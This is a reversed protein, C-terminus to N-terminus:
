GADGARDLVWELHHDYLTAPLPRGAEDWGMMQYYFQIVERFQDRDLQRGAQVGSPVPEDFFRAPMVAFGLTQILKPLKPGPPLAAQTSAEVGGITASAGTRPAVHTM